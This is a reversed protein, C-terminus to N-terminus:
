FYRPYIIRKRKGGPTYNVMLEHSGYNTRILQSTPLDLSYGIRWNKDMQWQLVAGAVEKFNYFIGVQLEDMYIVAAHASVSLPANFTGRILMNPQFKVYRNINWTKGGSLYITPETRGELVNYLESGKKELRNRLMKPSSLGLYFDKGYYFVGFGANPLFVGNQNFMFNEDAQNYYDSTLAVDVLNAQFLGATLKAGFALTTRNMLRIRYSIDGSIQAESTPGLKDYMLSGGIALEDVQLPTAISIISTMPAGKFGVWQNRHQLTASLSEMYGTYGPNYFQKNYVYQTFMAEQQADASAVLFLAIISLFIYRKM